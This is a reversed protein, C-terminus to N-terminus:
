VFQEELNLKIPIHFEPDFNLEAVHSIVERLPKKDKIWQDCVEHKLRLGLSNVGVLAGNKTNFTMRLCREHEDDRWFYSDIGDEPRTPVYGYTQYELDVFKASNFWIGPDYNTPEGTLTKAVTEGMMRGTYWVAEISRRHLAPQRLEACDGIAYVDNASTKLHRDVLIGKNTEIPGTSVLEVNPQVGVTIGLFGCDVMDGNNLRITQVRDTGEIATLTTDLCLDINRSRIHENVMASEEQPLVMNWYSSERVVLTTHIGKSHLMEAMEIGILGGGVVVANTVDRTNEEMLELDQRSYLAQIGKLQINPLDMKRSKSGLALVLKYYKISEGSRLTISHEDTDIASVYAQKLQIKNKDWFWNEYPQTHKFTMHGMYVYM